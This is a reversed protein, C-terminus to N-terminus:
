VEVESSLYMKIYNSAPNFFHVELKPWLDCKVKCFPKLVFYM